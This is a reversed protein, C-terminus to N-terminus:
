RRAVATEIQDRVWPFATPQQLRQYDVRLFVSLTDPILAGSLEAGAQLSSGSSDAPNDDTAGGLRAGSYSVYPRFSVPGAGRRTQASIIAGPTGRWEADQSRPMVQAQDVAGRAFAPASTPDAAFAPHGPVRAQVGDVMLRSWRGPLGGASAALGARSDRPGDLETASRSLDSLDLHRGLLGLEGSGLFRGASTGALAGGAERETVSEIPPPRREIAVAVTTTQGAAVVVNLLRVPQFGVQEVLVRYIGPALLAVRFAGQFDTELFRVTAGQADELTVAAAGVSGGAAELVTGRLQGATLSQATLPGSPSLWLVAAVVAALRRIPRCASLPGYM